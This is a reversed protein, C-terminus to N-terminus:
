NHVFSLGMTMTFLYLLSTTVRITYISFVAAIPICADYDAVYNVSPIRRQVPVYLYKFDQHASPSSYTRAAAAQSPLRKTATPRAVKTPPPLESDPPSPRKQFPQRQWSSEPPRTVAYLNAAPLEIAPSVQPCQKLWELPAESWTSPYHPYSHGLSRWARITSLPIISAYESPDPIAESM